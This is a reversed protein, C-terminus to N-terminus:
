TRIGSKMMFDAWRNKDRSIQQTVKKSLDEDVGMKMFIDEVEKRELEPVTEIEYYENKLLSNYYDAQAQGALFGGLGMSICGAAIEAIGSVVILHTTGMVGSLGATLAFPVTLGDSM